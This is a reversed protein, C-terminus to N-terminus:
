RRATDTESRSVHADTLSKDQGIDAANQLSGEVSPWLDPSICSLRSMKKTRERSKCRGILEVSSAFFSFGNWSDLLYELLFLM